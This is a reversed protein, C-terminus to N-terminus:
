NGGLLLQTFEATGGFFSAVCQSLEHATSEPAAKHRTVVAHVTTLLPKGAADYDTFSFSVLHRNPKNLARIDLTHKITMTSQNVASSGATTERRISDMGARSVLTFERGATGDNVNVIDGIM